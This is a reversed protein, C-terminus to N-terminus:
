THRMYYYAVVIGLALVLPDITQATVWITERLPEILLVLLIVMLWFSSDM